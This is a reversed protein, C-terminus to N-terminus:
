SNRVPTVEGHKVKKIPFHTNSSYSGQLMSALLVYLLLISPMDDTSLHINVVIIIAFSLLKDFNCYISDKNQM